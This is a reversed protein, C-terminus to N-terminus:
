LSVLNLNAFEGFYNIAARNYAEAADEETKFNGLKINKYNVTIQATIYVYKTERHKVTCFSVGKYKSSKNKQAIQNRSNEKHLCIRLNNLQCNLGNGDIHDVVYLNPANMILRHMWINIWRGGIMIRRGAYYTNNGKSAFWTFKNLSDFVADDVLVVFKGKNKGHQSLKIEKM